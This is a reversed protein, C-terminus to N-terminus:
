AEKSAEDEKEAWYRAMRDRQDALAIVERVLPRKDGDFGDIARYWQYRKTGWDVRLFYVYCCGYMELEFRDSKILM